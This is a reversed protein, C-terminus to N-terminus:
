GQIIKAFRRNKGTITYEVRETSVMPADDGEKDWTMQEEIGGLKDRFSTPSYAKPTYKEGFHQSYWSLIYTLEQMSRFVLLENFIKAWQKFNVKRFVKRHKVLIVYLNEALEHGQSKQTTQKLFGM